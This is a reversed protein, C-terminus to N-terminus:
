DIRKNWKIWYIAYEVVDEVFMDKVGIIFASLM